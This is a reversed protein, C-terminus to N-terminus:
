GQHNLAMDYLQNKPIGFEEGAQKCAAKLPLGQQQAEDATEWLLKNESESWGTRRGTRAIAQEM